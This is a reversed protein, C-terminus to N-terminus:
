GRVDPLPHGAETVTLSRLLVAYGDAVIVEGRVHGAGLAQECGAAMRAAAKGAGVVLLTPLERRSARTAAGPLVEAAHWRLYDAVLKTPDVAALAARLIASASTRVPVSSENV